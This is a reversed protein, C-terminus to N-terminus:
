GDCEMIKECLIGTIYASLKKHPLSVSNYCVVPLMWELLAMYYPVINSNGSTCGMAYKRMKLTLRLNREMIEPSKGDWQIDLIQDMHLSNYFDSTFRIMKKLDDEKDVISHEIMFIAELRAFDSVVSRPKTESFDILYVNLDNDLLINQMNLDGHCISTFFPIGLDRRKPYEHKLFWYPNIRKLGTEEITMYKEDSSLSFLEEATKCLQPFFTLTPDHDKYPFIMEQVPQGYWPKLIQLFIKDFLPELDKCPWSTFYNTLWKLQSQEGGIGVFNYRLAGMDCFFATGLVMASNNMIYPLSYKECREAERSIINRNAIKMVTPRLKRGQSDFSDVQFTQASYGGHLQKVLVRVSDSYIRRTLYSKFPEFISNKGTEVIIRQNSADEWNEVTFSWIVPSTVQAYLDAIRVDEINVITLARHIFNQFSEGPNLDPLENLSFSIGIIQNADATTRIFPSLQGRLDTHLDGSHMQGPIHILSISPSDHNFDAILLLHNKDSHDNGSIKLINDILKDLPIDSPELLKFRSGSSNGFSLARHVFIGGTAPDKVVRFEPSSKQDLPICAACNGLTVFLGQDDKEEVLSEALSGIGLSVMLENYGVIGPDKWILGTLQKQELQNFQFLSNGAQKILEQNDTTELKALESRASKPDKYIQFLTHLGAMELVQFVEPSLGSLVLRGGNSSLKKSAAILTRIGTSALYNCNAFDIILFKEEALLLQLRENFISSNLTDLRGEPSLCTVTGEKSTSINFM